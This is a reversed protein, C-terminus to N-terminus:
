PLTYHYITPYPLYGLHPPYDKFKLTPFHLSMHNAALPLTLVLVLYVVGGSPDQTGLTLYTPLSRLWSLTPSASRPYDYETNM